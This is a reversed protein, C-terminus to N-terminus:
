STIMLQGKHPLYFRDFRCTCVRQGAGAGADSISVNRACFAMSMPSSYNPRHILMPSPTFSLAFAFRLSYFNYSSCSCSMLSYWEASVCNQTFLTYNPARCLISPRQKRIVIAPQSTSQCRKLQSQTQSHTHTHMQTHVTSNEMSKWQCATGNTTDRGHRVLKKNVDSEGRIQKSDRDDIIIKKNKKRM